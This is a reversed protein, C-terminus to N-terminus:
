PEGHFFCSEEQNQKRQSENLGDGQRGLIGRALLLVPAIRQSQDSGLSFDDEIPSEIFLIPLSCLSHGFEDLLIGIFAHRSGLLGFNTDQIVASIKIESDLAKVRLRFPDPGGFQAAIISKLVIVAEPDNQIGKVVVTIGKQEADIGPAGLVIGQDGILSAIDVGAPIFFPFDLGSDVLVAPRSFDPDREARNAKGRRPGSYTRGLRSIMMLFLSIMM